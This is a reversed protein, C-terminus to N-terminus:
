LTIKESAAALDQAATYKIQEFPLHQPNTEIVLSIGAKQIDSCKATNLGVIAITKKGKSTSAIGFPVKGMLSQEDMKGEGTIVLDAGVTKNQFDTINLITDIGRKLKAGLFAVLAFGLGGAAGAGELSSYDEGLYEKAKEGLLRLGMDLDIVQSKSSGKQPAYIYAAGKEGYLPNKVDCLVTIDSDKLRKDLGSLDIKEIGKLGEGCLPVSFGNKDLFKGGLAGVCGIGADTTASGGIGILFKRIGSDLAHRIMQGTGFTSAKMPDNEKEITIGSAQAMEIVATDGGIVGYFVERTTGLPSEAQCYIKESKPFAYLFCETLGEGGDAIPISFIEIDKYKNRLTKEIIQCVELSSLTGKFSDPAIVVKKM